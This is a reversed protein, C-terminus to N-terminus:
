CCFLRGHFSPVLCIEESKVLSYQFLAEYLSKLRRQQIHIETHPNLLPLLQVIIVLICDSDSRQLSLSLSLSLPLPLSLSLSLSPPLSPPLSLSLSSPPLHQKILFSIQHETVFVVLHVYAGATCTPLNM